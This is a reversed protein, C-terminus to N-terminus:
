IKIQIEIEIKKVDFTAGFNDGAREGAGPQARGGCGQGVPGLSGPGSDNGLLFASNALIGALGAITKPRVVKVESSKVMAAVEDGLGPEAPGEIICCARGAAVLGTIVEAFSAPAWNKSRSGSGPHIAVVRGVPLWEYELVKAGAEFLEAPLLLPDNTLEPAFGKFYEAIHEFARQKSNEPPRTSCHLVRAIGLKGLNAILEDASKGLFVVAADFGKLFHGFEGSIDPEATFLKAFEAADISRMSSFIGCKKLLEAAGGTTIAHIESGPRKKLALLSPALLMMDGLTGPHIILLKM